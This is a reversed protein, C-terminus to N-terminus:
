IGGNAAGRATNRAGISQHFSNAIVKVLGDVNSTANYFNRMVTVSREDLSVAYHWWKRPNLVVEGPALV